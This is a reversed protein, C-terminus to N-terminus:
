WIKLKLVKLRGSKNTSVNGLVTELSAVFPNAIFLFIQQYDCFIM